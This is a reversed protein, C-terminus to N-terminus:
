PHCINFRTDWPLHFSGWFACSTEIALTLLQSLTLRSSSVDKHTISATKTTAIKYLRRVICLASSPIGVGAALLFKSSIDCWIPARIIVDDKWIISNVASALCALASWIMYACTGVNWAQLHWPLPVLALFFAVFGVVPFLPYTPDIM